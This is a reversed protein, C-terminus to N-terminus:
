ILTSFEAWVSKLERRSTQVGGKASNEARPTPTNNYAVCNCEYRFCGLNFNFVRGLCSKPERRSAQM